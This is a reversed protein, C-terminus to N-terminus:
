AYVTKTDADYLACGMAHNTAFSPTHEGTAVDVFRFYSPGNIDKSM